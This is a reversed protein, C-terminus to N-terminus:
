HFEGKFLANGSANGSQHGRCEDGAHQENVMAGDRCRDFGARLGLCERYGRAVSREAIVGGVGAHHEGATAEPAHLT